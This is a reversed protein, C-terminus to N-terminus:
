SPCTTDKVWVRAGVPGLYSPGGASSIGRPRLLGGIRGDVPNPAMAFGMSTHRPKRWMMKAQEAKQWSSWKVFTTNGVTVAKARIAESKDRPTLRISTSKPKPLNLRLGEMALRWCMCICICLYVYVYVYIYICVCICICIYVYVYVYVYLVSMHPVM